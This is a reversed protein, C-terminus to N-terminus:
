KSQDHSLSPPINVRKQLTLNNQILRNNKTQKKRKLKEWKLTATAKCETQIHTHAIDILSIDRIKLWYGIGYYKQPVM